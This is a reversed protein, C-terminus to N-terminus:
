NKRKEWKGINYKWLYNLQTFTIRANSNVIMIPIVEENHKMNKSEKCSMYLNDFDICM